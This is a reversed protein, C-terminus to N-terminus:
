RTATFHAYGYTFGVARFLKVAKRATSVNRAVDRRPLGNVRVCYVVTMRLGGIENFEINM